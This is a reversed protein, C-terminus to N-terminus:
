TQANQLRRDRGTVRRYAQRADRGFNTFERYAWTPHAANWRDMLERLTGEHAAFFVALELHKETMPRDPGKFVDARAKAYLEAVEEKSARPNVELTILDREFGRFTQKVRARPIPPVTATLVWLVAWAEPWFPELQQALRKLRGLTGNRRVPVTATWGDLAFQLTESQVAVSLQGREHESLEALASFWQAPSAGPPLPLRIWLTSPGDAAAQAEIWAPVDQPSLLRGGLVDQRFARVEPWRAAEVALIRSLAWDRKDPPLERVIPPKQEPQGLTELDRYERFLEDLTADGALVDSPWRKKVLFSWINPRPDRGLLRALAQRVDDTTKM